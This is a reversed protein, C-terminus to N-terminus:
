AKILVLIQYLDLSALNVFRIILREFTFGKRKFIQGLFGM